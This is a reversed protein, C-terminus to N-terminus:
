RMEELSLSCGRPASGSARGLLEFGDEHRIALDDTLIVFPKSINALDYLVAVGQEGVGVNHLTLPHCVRVRTWHPPQKPGGAQSYFQSGLETLGYLNFCLKEPVNFFRSTLEVFDARNLERSRGKFGGADLLRSGEPLPMTQINESIADIFNVFGFSGGIITIPVNEAIARKIYAGAEKVLLQGQQVAFLPPEVGWRQGIRNMGYAMIINPAEDPSPVLMLFRTKREDACLQNHCNQLISTEMVHLDIDDFCSTGRGKGSTGITQFTIKAQEGAFFCTEKFVNLGIPPIATIDPLNEPTVSLGDYYLRAQAIHQYQFAFLERALPDFNNTNENRIFDGIRRAIQEKAQIM